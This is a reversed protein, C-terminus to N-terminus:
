QEKREDLIFPVFFQPYIKSVEYLQCLATNLGYQINHDVRNNGHHVFKFHGKELELTDPYNGLRMLGALIATVGACCKIADTTGNNAHGNVEFEYYFFYDDGSRKRREYVARVEIM